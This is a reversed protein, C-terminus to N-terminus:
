RGSLALSVTPAQSEATWRTALLFCCIFVAEAFIDWMEWNFANSTRSQPPTGISRMREPFICPPFRSSPGYLMGMM